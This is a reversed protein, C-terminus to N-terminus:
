VRSDQVFVLLLPVDRHQRGATQSLHTNQLVRAVLNLVGPRLPVREKESLSRTLRLVNDTQKEVRTEAKNGAIKFGKSVPHSNLQETQFDPEPRKWVPIDQFQRNDSRRPKDNSDGQVCYAGEFVQSVRKIVLYLQSVGEDHLQWM